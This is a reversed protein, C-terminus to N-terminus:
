YVTYCDQCQKVNNDEDYYKSGCKPCGSKIVDGGGCEKEKQTEKLFNSLSPYYDEGVFDMMASGPREEHTILQVSTPDINFRLATDFEQVVYHLVNGDADDKVSIIKGHVEKKKGLVKGKVESGVHIYREDSQPTSKQQLIPDLPKISYTYMLNPGGNSQGSGFGFGRGYVRGGMSPNGYGGGGGGWVAYGAGGIGEKLIEEIDEKRVMRTMGSLDKSAKELDPDDFLFLKQISTDSLSESSVYYAKGNVLIKESNM